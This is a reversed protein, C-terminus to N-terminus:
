LLHQIVEDLAKLLTRILILPLFRHILTSVRTGMKKQLLKRFPNGNGYLPNAIITNAPHSKFTRKM